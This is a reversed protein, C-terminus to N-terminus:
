IEGSSYKRSWEQILEVNDGCLFPWDGVSEKTPIYQMICNPLECTPGANNPTYCDEAGFLHLVEHWVAYKNDLKWVVGLCGCVSGWVGLPNAERSSVAIQSDRKCSILLPSFHHEKHFCYEGLDAMYRFFGQHSTCLRQEIEKAAEIPVPKAMLRICTLHEQILETLEDFYQTIKQEDSESLDLCYWFLQLM